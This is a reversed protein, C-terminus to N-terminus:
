VKEPTKNKKAKQKKTIDKVITHQITKISNCVSHAKHATVTSSSRPSTMTRPSQAKTSLFSIMRVRIRRAQKIGRILQRPARAKKSM